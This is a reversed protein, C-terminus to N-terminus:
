SFPRNVTPAVRPSPAVPSSMVAFRLVMRLMGKFNPTGRVDARALFTGRERGEPVTEGESRSLSPTLPGSVPELSFRAVDSALDSPFFPAVSSPRAPM